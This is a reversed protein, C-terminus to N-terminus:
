YGDRTGEYRTDHHCRYISQIKCKSKETEKKKFKLKLTENTEKTYFKVFVILLLIISYTATLIRLANMKKKLYSVANFSDKIYDQLLDKLKDEEM